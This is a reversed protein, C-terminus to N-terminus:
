AAKLGLKIGVPCHDSGLVDPLIFADKVSPKLDESIFYYDIRWGINRARAGTRLDWWSYQGPEKHFLRLTDIFGHSLLKDIWAREQPLFGSVSENEKPRALDIPEHATNVDGCVVIKKGKKQLKLFYKLIEDYFDMKYRLREVSMKGNPFYVNFLTFSGFDTELVRGEQDFRATGFGNKVALPKIKSYTAVGSYGPRQASNWHATYGPPYLLEPPLQNPMAKTEQLCLVDPSEKKLWDLFGKKLVARIGNVNWSLLTLVVM